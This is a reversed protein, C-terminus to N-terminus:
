PMPVEVIVDTTGQEAGVTVKVPLFYRDPKVIALDVTVKLRATKLGAIEHPRDIFAQFGAPLDGFTFVAAEPAASRLSLEGYGYTGFIQVLTGTIPLGPRKAFTVPKLNLETDRRAGVDQQVSAGLNSCAAHGRFIWNPHTSNAIPGADFLFSLNSKGDPLTGAIGVSAVLEDNVRMQGEWSCNGGPVINVPWLVEITQFKGGKDPRIGRATAIGVDYKRDPGPPLERVADVVVVGAGSENGSTAEVGIFYRGPAVSESATVQLYAGQLQATFGPPVSTLRYVV